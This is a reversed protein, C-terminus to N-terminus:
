RRFHYETLVTDVNQNYTRTKYLRKADNYIASEMSDAYVFNKDNQDALLYKVMGHLLAGHFLSPLAPANCLTYNASTAGSVGFATQLTLTSGAASLALVRYWESDAKDGFTDIRFYWGSTAEAVRAGAHLTVTTGNAAITATGATTERLPEPLRFYDYPMAYAKDPPAGVEVQQNGATDPGILRCRSPRAPSATFDSYYEQIPVEPIPTPRGGQWLQLGGNKPFRDFDSALPYVPQFLTYAGATVNRDESLPPTITGSTANAYVFAYINPNDNIRLRWGTHAANLSVDSSFTVTTSGTTATITGTVYKASTALVASALLPQWDARYPLDRTYADHLAGWVRSEDNTTEIRAIQIAREVLETAPLERINKAM